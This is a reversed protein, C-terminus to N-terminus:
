ASPGVPHVKSKIGADLLRQQLWCLTAQTDRLERIARRADRLPIGRYRRVVRLSEIEDEPDEISLQWTGDRALLWERVDNPPEGLGDFHIRYGCSTCAQCETWHLGGHILRQDYAVSLDGRCQPCQAIERNMRFAKSSFLEYDTM